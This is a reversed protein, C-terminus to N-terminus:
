PRPGVGARERMKDMFGGSFESFFMGNENVSLIHLTDSELDFNNDEKLILVIAKEFEAQTQYPGGMLALEVGNNHVLFRGIPVAITKM